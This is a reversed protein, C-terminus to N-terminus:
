STPGGRAADTPGDHPASERRYPVNAVVTNPRGLLAQRLRQANQNYLLRDWWHRPVYEPLVVITILDPASPAM